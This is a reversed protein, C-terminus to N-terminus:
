HHSCISSSRSSSSSKLSQSPTSNSLQGFEESEEKLHVEEIGRSIRQITKQLGESCKHNSQASQSIHEILKTCIDFRLSKLTQQRQKLQQKLLSLNQTKAQNSFDGSVRRQLRLQLDSIKVRIQAEEKKMKQISDENVIEQIEKIYFEELSDLDEDKGLLDSRKIPHLLLNPDEDHENTDSSTLSESNSEKASATEVVEEAAQTRRKLSPQEPQSARSGNKSEEEGQTPTHSSSQM